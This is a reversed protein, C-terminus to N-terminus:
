VLKDVTVGLIRAIRAVLTFGPDVEGKEIRLLHRVTIRAKECLTKQSMGIEIRFTKINKGLEKKM